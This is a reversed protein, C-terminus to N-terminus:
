RRLVVHRGVAPEEGRNDFRMHGIAWRDGHREVRSGAQFRTGRALTRKPRRKIRDRSALPSAAKRTKRRASTRRLEQGGEGVIAMLYRQGAGVPNQIPTLAVAGAGFNANGGTVVVSSLPSPM